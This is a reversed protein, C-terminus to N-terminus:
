KKENFVRENESDQFPLHALDKLHKKDARILWITMAVFFIFFALLSLVPYTDIGEIGNLYNKFM